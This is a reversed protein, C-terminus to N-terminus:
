IDHEHLSLIGPDDATDAVLPEFLDLLIQQIEAKWNRPRYKVLHIGSAFATENRVCRLLGPPLGNLARFPHMGTDTKRQNYSVLRYAEQVGTMAFWIEKLLLVKEYQFGQRM